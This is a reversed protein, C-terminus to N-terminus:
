KLGILLNRVLAVNSRSCSKIKRIKRQLLRATTEDEIIITTM